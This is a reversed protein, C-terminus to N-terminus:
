FPCENEDLGPEPQAAEFLDPNRQLWKALKKLQRVAVKPDAGHPILVRVDAGHMLEVTGSATLSDGEADPHMVDDPGACYFADLQLFHKPPTGAYHGLKQCFLEHVNM